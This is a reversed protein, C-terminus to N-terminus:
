VLFSTPGGAGRVWGAQGPGSGWSQGAGGEKYGDLGSVGQNWGGGLRAELGWVCM